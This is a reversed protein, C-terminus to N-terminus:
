VGYLLFELLRTSLLAAVLGIAMGIGALKLGQLMVLRLVDNRQAGLATRIGIERTRQGVSYALMGYLGVVALALALLGFSGLLTGAAEAPFLALKLHARLTQAEVTLAPDIEAMERRVTEVMAGPPVSTRVVVVGRSEYNQLLCKFVFPRPDEGLSRYKGTGVVGVVIGKREGGPVPMSRGLADGGPWAKRAFAENVILVDPAPSIDTLSFDRGQLLPIGM